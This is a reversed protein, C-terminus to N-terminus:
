ESRAALMLLVEAKIDRFVLEEDRSADIKVWKGSWSAMTKKYGASVRGYYELGRVDFGDNMGRIDLRSSAIDPPVDLFFVADPVPLGIMDGLRSAYEATDSDIASNSFVQYALTSPTYRDSLVTKGASLAPRIVREVHECRDLMFFFFEGWLSTLGGGLVFERAARGGEWGGPERTRVLKDGGFESKLMWELRDTQTTKGSGDIGELVFFM